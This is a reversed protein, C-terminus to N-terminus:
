ITLLNRMGNNEWGQGNDNLYKVVKTQIIEKDYCIYTIQGSNTIKYVIM